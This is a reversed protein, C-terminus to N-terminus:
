KRVFLLAVQVALTLMSGILLLNMQWRRRDNEKEREKLEAVQSELVAIKAVMEVIHADQLRESLVRVTENLVAIQTKLERVQETLSSPM